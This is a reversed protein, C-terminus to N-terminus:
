RLLLGQRAGLGGEGLDRGNVEGADGGKRLGDYTRENIEVFRPDGHQESTKSKYYAKWATITKLPGSSPLALYRQLAERAEAEHDTM